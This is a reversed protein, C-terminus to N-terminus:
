QTVIFHSRWGQITKPIASKDEQNTLYHFELKNQANPAVRMAWISGSPNYMIIAARRNAEGIVRLTMAKASVNDLDQTYHLANATAVYQEYEDGALQRFASDLKEDPLIGTNLLTSAPRPDHDGRVYVGDPRVDTPFLLACSGNSQTSVELNGDQRPVVIMACNEAGNINNVYLVGYYRRAESDIDIKYAGRVAHLDLEASFDSANKIVLRGSEGNTASVNWWEGSWDIHRNANFLQGYGQFYARKLCFPSSCAKRQQLWETYLKSNPQAQGVLQELWRADLSHDLWRLEPDRCVMQETPSSARQCDVAQAATSLLLVLGTLLSIFFTKM